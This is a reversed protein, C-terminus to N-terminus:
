MAAGGNVQIMQGNVFAGSDSVLMSAVAAVEAPAGLRGIPIYKLDDAIQNAKEQSDRDGLIPGPSIANVTVGKSGFEAALSKVLGWVAHKVASGHARGAHGKIANMGTFGIIRGWGQDIMGPLFAQNLRVHSKLNTDFVLDWDADTMELFPKRPRIAANNVMVDVTGFQELATATMRAVDDRNGIDGMIIAAEVGLARAEDAVPECLERRSSGNIIVNLGDAALALAVARGINRGSGTIFATRRTESM